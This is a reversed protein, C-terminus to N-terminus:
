NKSTEYVKHGLKYVRKVKGSRDLITLDADAGPKLSGKKGYVGIAKAPNVTCTKIAEAIPIEAWNVLNMLSTDLEVASGAITDTGELYVKMDKKVVKQMGWNYTGSPLGMLFMADTVLCCGEPHAHYAIKVGSPHVHIGDVIVGFYPRINMKETSNSNLDRDNAGLLGFLGTERHHPQTMANYVHTIMTAGKQIAECGGKYTLVSHGMSITLGMDALAPISEMVGEQEAALTIIKAKRLDEEGYIKKMTEIGEPATIIAAMPHCGPKLPSLFPGELHLGLSEAGESTREPHMHKLVKHYVEPFTSPLTPCFSTVGSKILRKCVDKFGAVFAEDTGDGYQSDSFDFGFAGNLQIDIFGPSLLDGNLDIVSYQQPINSEKVDLILGSMLDVWLESNPTEIGEDILTANIFKVVQNMENSDYTLAADSNASTPSSCTSQLTPENDSDDSVSVGSVDITLEVM